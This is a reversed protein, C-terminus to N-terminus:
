TKFQLNGILALKLAVKFKVNHFFVNAESAKKILDNAEEARRTMALM